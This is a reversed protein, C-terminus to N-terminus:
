HTISGDSGMQWNGTRGQDGNRGAAAGFLDCKVLELPDALVPVRSLRIPSISEDWSM